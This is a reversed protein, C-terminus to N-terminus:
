ERDERGAFLLNLSESITYSIQKVMEDEDKPTVFMGNLHPSILEKVLEYKEANNYMKLVEGVGKLTESTEMAQILNEMTDSVITAADVVTPVGIGLVPVGLTERTLGNRHNGVGSGPHIGTDAIQITRNLRRSNRAALADVAIVLDPKTETVVGKVIELTEMGTQGMVGPVIASVLQAREMGMAYKGYERVIHRTVCLNDAVYPGLADPTVQRNGLGVVLVSIDRGTLHNEHLLEEMHDALKESIERHYDEDPVALNPAELTLYVGAPKGMAKAGNETEIKVRTIRIELTEDYDEELVVGSIEVNDSEFREKEELALDTRVSYKEIMQDM